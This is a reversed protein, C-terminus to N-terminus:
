TDNRAKGLNAVSWWPQSDVPKGDKRFEIYLTPSDTELAFAAASAVRKVGMAAIPEGAVVFQGQTVNIREMGAMVLHYGEGANLIVMQGYSRFEGAYVIWGDAPATVVSGPNTAVVIGQATHGTGNDQGYNRIVSGEAPLGVRGKLDSFAFAPAIRNADPGTTQMENRAKERDAETMKQRKEADEQAKKQAERVSSIQSELDDILGQLSTSQKALQEARQQEADLAAANEFNRKKNEEILLNTRRAEELNSQLLDTLAMREDAISKQTASLDTLDQLLVNAEQRIGPVVAGLLIASRVSALADEPEILLAPPPNSSLRQLAALVESLLGRRARLSIRIKTEKTKYLALQKERNAIKRETERRKAASEVLAARMAKTSTNLAKISEELEAAKSKSVTLDKSLTELESVTQTKRGVLDSAPDTKQQDSEFVQSQAMPLSLLMAAAFVLLRKGFTVYDGKGASQGMFIAM